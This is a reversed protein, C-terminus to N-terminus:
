NAKAKLQSTEELRKDLLVLMNQLINIEVEEFKAKESDSLCEIRSKYLKKFDIREKENETSLYQLFYGKLAEDLIIHNLFDQLHEKRSAYMNFIKIDIWTKRIIGLM